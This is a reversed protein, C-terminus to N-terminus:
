TTSEEDDTQQTDGDDGEPRGQSVIVKAHRLVKENLRYGPSVEQVIIGEDHEESPTRMLADHAEPDFASGVTEMKTLGRRGLVDWLQDRILAVGKAFEEVSEGKHDANVARELNDLVETLQTILDREANAVVTGFERASRKRFNDFEAALRLYRDHWDEATPEAGKEEMAPAEGVAESPAEEEAPADPTEAESKVEVPIETETEKDSKKRNFM